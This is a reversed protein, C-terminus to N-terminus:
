YYHNQKCHLRKAVIIGAEVPVTVTLAPETDTVVSGVNLAVVTVAPADLTVKAFYLKM